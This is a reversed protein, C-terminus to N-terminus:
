PLTREVVTRPLCVFKRSHGQFRVSVKLPRSDDKGRQLTGKIAVKREYVRYEILEEKILKGEPYDFKVAILKGERTVEVKAQAKEFLEDGVPNAYIYWGPEVDLTVTLVQKGDADPKEAAVTVEVVSDTKAPTRAPSRGVTLFALVAVAALVALTAWGRFSRPMM